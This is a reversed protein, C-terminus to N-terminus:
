FFYRSGYRMSVMYGKGQLQIRVRDISKVFYSGSSGQYIREPFIGCEIANEATRIVETYDPDEPFHNFLSDNFDDPRGLLPTSERNGRGPRPSGPSIPSDLSQSFTVDPPPLEIDDTTLTTPLSM